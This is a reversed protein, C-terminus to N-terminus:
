PMDTKTQHNIRMTIATTINIAEFKKALAASTIASFVPYPRENIPTIRRAVAVDKGSSPVPSLEIRKTPSGSRAAPSANPLLINLMKIIPTSSKTHRFPGINFATVFVGTKTAPRPMIKIEM